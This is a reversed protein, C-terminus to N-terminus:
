ATYLLKRAEMGNGDKKGNRRFSARRAGSAIVKREDEDLFTLDARKEWNKATEKMM